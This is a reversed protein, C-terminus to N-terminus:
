DWTFRQNQWPDGRMHYGNQEWFGPHNEKTFQIGRLWKASKWFYLHPFVGRLPFGHEPTLPEGNHAYALLSTEALFDNLPLNTTWGEEAHLIVYGAEEKVGAKEALDRARVGQWVNDLRSWGTVCHIDNKSEYQPFAKVDEFSLLMPHDVLGYIQLNWKAMDEYYPVNGTHLVPFSTTVNQNPPVRGSQDSQKTKGFYM